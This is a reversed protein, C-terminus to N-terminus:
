IGNITTSDVIRTFKLMFQHYRIMYRNTTQLLEIISTYLDNLNNLHNEELTVDCQAKVANINLTINTRYETNISKYMEYIPTYVHLQSPIQTNNAANSYVLSINQLAVIPVHMVAGGIGGPVPRSVSITLDTFYTNQGGNNVLGNNVSTGTYIRVNVHSLSRYRLVIMRINLMPLIPQAVDNAINIDKNFRLTLPEDFRLIVENPNTGRQGFLNYETNVNYTPTHYRNTAGTMSFNPVVTNDHGIGFENEFTINQAGVVGTVSRNDIITTSDQAFNMINDFGNSLNIPNTGITQILNLNDVIQLYENFKFSNKIIDLMSLKDERSNEFTAMFANADTQIVDCMNKLNEMTDGILQGLHQDLTNKDDIRFYPIMDADLHQVVPQGHPAPTGAVVAGNTNETTLFIGRARRPDEYASSTFDVKEFMKRFKKKVNKVISTKYQNSLEKLQIKLEDDNQRGGRIINSIRENINRVADDDPIENIYDKILYEIHTTIDKFRSPYNVSRRSGEIYQLNQNNGKLMVDYQEHVLKSIKSINIKNVIAENPDGIFKETNLNKCKSVIGKSLHHLPTIGLSNDQNMVVNNKLLLKIIETSYTSCAILLPTNGKKDKVGTKIGKNILYEIMAYKDNDNLRSEVLIHLANKEESDLTNISIINNSLFTELENINGSNIISFFGQM